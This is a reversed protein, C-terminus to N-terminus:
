KDRDQILLMTFCASWNYDTIAHYKVRYDPTEPQPGKRNQYLPSTKEEADYFEFICGTEEFWRNVAKLTAAKISDALDDYGYRRLGRIIFYNYNLWVGGRWMDTGYDACSRAVSPVPLPTNFENKDELLRVLRSARGADCVGAFLPLFSCCSLVGTLGTDFGRDFYAGSKDDWLYENILDTTKQALDDFRAAQGHDGLIRYIDALCRCDHVQFCACDVADLRDLTDFRPSNDMGSEDCRCRINTFDTKWEPLGNHDVDRNDNFWLLYKAIRDAVAALFGADGCKRYIELAAWAVVQPQTIDSVDDASKMMHPLFGDERQCSLVALVAEKAMAPDYEAFAIAHFMSDWLWMHRHPLRDPTTYRCEFGDQPSYVNVRNVSLCKYYLKEYEAHICVPKTRYYDLKTEVFCDVDIGALSRAHELSDERSRARCFVFNEGRQLLCYCYGDAFIFETEEGAEECGDGDFFIDVHVITRGIVSDMDAFAMTLEPSKIMDSLIFDFGSSKVPISLTVPTKADFRINVPGSMMMGAFDDGHSNAGDMGSFAFLIGYGYKDPLRM